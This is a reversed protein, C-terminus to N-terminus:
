GGADEVALADGDVRVRGGGPFPPTGFGGSTPELAIENGTAAVRAPAVILEAVRHLSARTAAFTSPLPPLDPM